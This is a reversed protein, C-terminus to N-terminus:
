VKFFELFDNGLYSSCKFLWKVMQNASWASLQQILYELTTMYSAKKKKEEGHDPGFFQEKLRLKLIQVATSWTKM